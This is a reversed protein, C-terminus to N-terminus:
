ALYFEIVTITVNGHFKQLWIAEFVELLPPLMQMEMTVRLWKRLDLKISHELFSLFYGGRWGSGGRHLNPKGATGKQNFFFPLVHPNVQSVITFNINLQQNLERPIDMRLSGDRFKKGWGTFPVMFVGPPGKSYSDKPHPRIDEPIIGYKNPISKNSKMMLTVPHLISPLASSALVASWIVVQPANLHNLLKNVGVESVVSINWTRGTRHYAELFTLDGYMARMQVIWNREEFFKGENFSRRLKVWNSEECPRFFTHFNPNFFEKLEEDRWTALVSGFLSGGSAGSLVKPLCNNEFLSKIVGVHYLCYFAGGSLNLATRGYLSDLKLLFEQKDLALSHVFKVAELRTDLFERIIIKTGLFSRSYLEEADINGVNPKCASRILIDRCLEYDGTIMAEKMNGTLEQLLRFDYLKSINQKKWEVAKTHDDLLNAVKCYEDFNECESLLQLLHKLKGHVVSSEYGFVVLRVLLYITLDLVLVICIGLLFPYKLIRHFFSTNEGM